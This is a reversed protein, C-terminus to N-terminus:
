RSLTTDLKFIDAFIVLQLLKSKNMPNLSLFLIAVERHLEWVVVGEFCVRNIFARVLLWTILKVTKIRM